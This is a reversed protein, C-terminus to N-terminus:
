AALGREVNDDGNEGREDSGHGNREDGKPGLHLLLADLVGMGHLHRALRAKLLLLDLGARDHAPSSLNFRASYCLARALLSASMRQPTRLVPLQARPPVCSCAVRTARPGHSVRPGGVCSRSLMFMFMFMFMFCSCPCSVHVHVHVHSYATYPFSRSRGAQTRTRHRTAGAGPERWPAELRSTASAFWSAM